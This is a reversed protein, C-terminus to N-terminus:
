HDWFATIGKVAPLRHNISKVLIRVDKGAGTLSASGAFTLAEAVPNDLVGYGCQGYDDLPISQWTTGDDKSMFALLDSTTVDNSVNEFVVKVHGATPSALHAPVILKPSQCFMDDALQTPGVNLQAIQSHRGNQGGSSDQLLWVSNNVGGCWNLPLEGTYDGVKKTGLYLTVKHEGGGVDNVEYWAEGQGNGAPPWDALRRWAGSSYVETAEQWSRMALTRGANNQVRTHLAGGSDIGIEVLDFLTMVGFSNGIPYGITKSVRAESGASLGTRLDMAPGAVAPDSHTLTAIQQIGTGSSINSWGYWEASPQRAMLYDSGHSRRPFVVARGAEHHLWSRDADFDPQAFKTCWGSPYWTPGFSPPLISPNLPYLDQIDSCRRFNFTM